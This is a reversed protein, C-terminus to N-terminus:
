LHLAIGIRGTLTDPDASFDAPNTFIGSGFDEEEYDTYVGEVRLSVFDCAMTEMGVGVQVGDSTFKGDPTYTGITDSLDFEGQAWGISAYFLTEPTVLYGARIRAAWSWDHDAPERYWQGEIDSLNGEVEAGLVFVPGLQWNYGAFVGGAFGDGEIDSYDDDDYTEAFSMMGLGAQAGVYIGTWDHVADPVAVDATPHAVMDPGGLHYAVGVRAELTEAGYELRGGNYYNDPDYATYVAEVRLSLPGESMAELGLALQVGFESYDSGEWGELYGTDWEGYAVGASGYFLTGPTLLYGARLRAAASWKEDNELTYWLGDIDTFNYEAELGLVFPDLQWNIGVFPGGTFGQGGLDTHDGIDDPYSESTSQLGYGVQGGVYFGTWNRDHVVDNVDAAQVCAAGLIAAVATAAVCRGNRM